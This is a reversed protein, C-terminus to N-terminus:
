FPPPLAGLFLVKKNRHRLSNLLFLTDGGALSVAKVPQNELLPSLPM